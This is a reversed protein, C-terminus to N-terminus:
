YSQPRVVHGYRVMAHENSSLRALQMVREQTILHLHLGIEIGVMEDFKWTFGSCSIIIHDADMRVAGPYKPNMPDSEDWTQFSAIHDSHAALRAAKEHALRAYKEMKSTPVAGVAMGAAPFWETGFPTEVGRWVVVYCGTDTGDFVQARPMIKRLVLDDICSGIARAIQSGPAHSLPETTSFGRVIESVPQGDILFDAYRMTETLRDLDGRTLEMREFMKLFLRIRHHCVATARADAATDGTSLEGGGHLTRADFERVLSGLTDLLVDMVPEKM